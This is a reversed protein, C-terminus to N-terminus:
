IRTLATVATQHKSNKMKLIVYRVSLTVSKLKEIYIYIFCIKIKLKKQKYILIVKLPDTRHFSCNSLYEVHLLLIHSVTMQNSVQLLAPELVLM